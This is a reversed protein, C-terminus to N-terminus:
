INAGHRLPIQKRLIIDLDSIVIKRAQWSRSSVEISLDARGEDAKVANAL